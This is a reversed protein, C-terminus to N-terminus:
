LGPEQHNALKQPSTYGLKRLCRRRSSQPHCLEKFLTRIVDGPDAHDRNDNQRTRSKICIRLDGPGRVQRAAIQFLLLRNLEAMLVMHPIVADVTAITM